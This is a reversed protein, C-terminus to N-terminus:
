RSKEIEDMVQLIKRNLKDIQVYLGLFEQRDPRTEDVLTGLRLFEDAKQRDIDKVIQQGARIKREGAKIEKKLSKEAERAAHLEHEDPHQGDEKLKMLRKKTQRVEDQKKQLDFILALVAKLESQHAASKKELQDLHHVHSQYREGPIQAAWAARGVERVVESKRREDRGLRVRLHTRKVRKKAGSLFENLRVRLEKDRLFIFAMLLLIVCLLFWFIWYPLGPRTIAPAAQLDVSSM